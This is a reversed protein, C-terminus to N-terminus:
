GYAGFSDDKPAHQKKSLDYLSVMYVAEDWFYALWEDKIGALASPRCHLAEAIHWQEQLKELSAILIPPHNLTREFFVGWKQGIAM